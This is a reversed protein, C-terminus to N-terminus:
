SAHKWSKNLQKPLVKRKMIIDGIKFKSTNDQKLLIKYVIVGRDTLCEVNICHFVKSGELGVSVEILPRYAKFKPIQIFHGTSLVFALSAIGNPIIDWGTNVLDKGKIVKGDPYTAIFYSSFPNVTTVKNHRGRIVKDM